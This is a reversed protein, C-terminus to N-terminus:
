GYFEFGQERVGEEHMSPVVDDLTDLPDAPGDSMGLLAHHISEHVLISTINRESSGRCLMVCPEDRLCLEEVHVALFGRMSMLRREYHEDLGASQVSKNLFCLIRNSTQHTRLFELEAQETYQEAEKHFSKRLSSVREEVRKYLSGKTVSLALEKMIVKERHRLPLRRLLFQAEEFRAVLVRWYAKKRELHFGSSVGGPRSHLYPKLPRHELQKLCRYAFKVLETDTNWISVIIGITRPNPYIRINGEADILGALYSLMTSHKSAVWERCENLSELLFGFSWDLIAQLNWEYTGSDKKYRPHQYAHGYPSFLSKFLEVMAPHTTSTSVRVVGRWPKSVSLDGHRLGLLYAKDEDTGDFPKREYKRRKERISKLRSEEFPRAEVGLQKCLWSTYGSTKNGILKAIDSLSMGREHHLRFLFSRLKQKTPEDLKKISLGRTRILALLAQDSDYFSAQESEKSLSKSTVLEM